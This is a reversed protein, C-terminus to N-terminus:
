RRHRLRIDIGADQYLEVNPFRVGCGGRRDHLRYRSYRQCRQMLKFDSVGEAGENATARDGLALSGSGFVGKVYIDGRPTQVSRYRVPVRYKETGPFEGGSMRRFSKCTGEVNEVYRHCVERGVDKDGCVFAPCRYCPTDPQFHPKYLLQM